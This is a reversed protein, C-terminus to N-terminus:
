LRFVQERHADAYLSCLLVGDFGGASFALSCFYEFKDFKSFMLVPYFLGNKYEWVSNKDFEL